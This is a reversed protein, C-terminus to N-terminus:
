RIVLRIPPGWMIEAILIGVITMIGFVCSGMKIRLVLLKFNPLMVHHRKLVAEEM